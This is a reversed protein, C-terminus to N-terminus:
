QALKGRIHSEVEEFTKGIEKAKAEIDQKTIVDGDVEFVVDGGIADDSSGGNIFDSVTSIPAGFVISENHQGLGSNRMNDQIELVNQVKSNYTDRAMTALANVQEVTLAGKLKSVLFDQIGSSSINDPVAIGAFAAMEDPRVVGSEVLQIAQKGIAAGSAMNKVPDEVFKNYNSEISKIVNKSVELDKVPLQDYYMDRVDKIDMDSYGSGFMTKLNYLDEAADFTNGQSSQEKNFMAYLPDKLLQNHIKQAEEPSNARAILAGAKQMVESQKEAMKLARDEAKIQSDARAGAQAAQQQQIQMAAQPNSFMLQNLANQDGQLAKSTQYQTMLDNVGGLAAGVDIPKSVPNSVNFAVTEQMLNPNIM